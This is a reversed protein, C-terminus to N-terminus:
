KKQNEEREGAHVWMDSKADVLLHRKLTRIYLVASFLEHSTGFRDISDSLSLTHEVCSM